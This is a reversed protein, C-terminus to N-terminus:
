ADKLIMWEDILPIIKGKNVQVHPLSIVTKPMVLLYFHNKIRIPRAVVSYLPLMNTINDIYTELAYSRYRVKGYSKAAFLPKEGSIWIADDRVGVVVAHRVVMQQHTIHEWREAFPTDELAHKIRHCKGILIVDARTAGIRHNIPVQNFRTQPTFFYLEKMRRKEEDREHKVELLQQQKVISDKRKLNLAKMAEDLGSFINERPKVKEGMSRRWICRVVFAMQDCLLKEDDESIYPLIDSVGKLKEILKKLPGFANGQSNIVQAELIASNIDGKKLSDYVQRM